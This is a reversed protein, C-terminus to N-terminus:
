QLLRVAVGERPHRAAVAVVLCPQRHARLRRVVPQPHGRLVALAHEVLQFPVEVDAVLEVLLHQGHVGREGRMFHKVPWLDSGEQQVGPAPVLLRGHSHPVPGPLEDVLEQRAHSHLSHLLTHTHHPLATLHTTLHTHAELPQQQVVRRVLVQVSARAVRGEVVESSEAGEDELLQAERRWREGGRGRRSRQAHGDVRAVVGVTPADDVDVLHDGGQGGVVDDAVHGLEAPPRGVLLQRQVGM